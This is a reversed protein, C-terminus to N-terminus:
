IVFLGESGLYVMGAKHIPKLNDVYYFTDYVFPSYSVKEKKTFNEVDVISGVVFAHVNRQKKDRARKQGSMSVRFSVNELFLNTAHGVVLSGQRISYFVGVRGLRRYVTVPKGINLSRGKFPVIHNGM